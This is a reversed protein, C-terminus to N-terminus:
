GQAALRSTTVARYVASRCEPHRVFDYEAGMLSEAAGLQLIGHPRTAKRIRMLIDRKSPADFYILVNRCYIVDFTGLHSFSRLLNQQHFRINRRLSDKIQWNSGAREFHKVLLDHPLGRQVEFQSYLGAKARSLAQADYDTAVIEVNWNVLQPFHEHLLIALSYPEQGTSCAASWIRMDRQHRRAEMVEPILTATLEEFPQGDRFFLSENTTMAENVAVNLRPDTGTRLQAVLGPIGAFGLSKALPTLRTEVLYEKGPGLCLGSDKLLISSLYEFDSAHITM